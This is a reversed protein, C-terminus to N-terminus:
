QQGYIFKCRECHHYILVTSRRELARPYWHFHRFYQSYGGLSGYEIETLKPAGERNGTSFRPPFRFVSPLRYLTNWIVRAVYSYIIAQALVFLGPIRTSLKSCENKFLIILRRSTLVVSFMNGMGSCAKRNSSITHM